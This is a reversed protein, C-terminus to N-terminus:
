RISSTVSKERPAESNTNVAPVDCPPIAHTSTIITSSSTRSNSWENLIDGSNGEDGGPAESAPPDDVVVSYVMM